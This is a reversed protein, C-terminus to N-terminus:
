IKGIEKNITPTIKEEAIHYCIDNIEFLNVSYYITNNDIYINIIDPLKERIRIIYKERDNNFESGTLEKDSVADVIIRETDTLKIYDDFIETAIDKYSTGAIQLLEDNNVIRNEKLNFNLTLIKDHNPIIYNIKVSLINGYIGYTINTDIIEHKLIENQKNLFDDSIKTDINNLFVRNGNIDIYYSIKNNVLTLEKSLNGYKHHYAYIWYAIMSIAICFIMIFLLIIKKNNNKYINVKNKKKM